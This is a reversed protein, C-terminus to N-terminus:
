AQSIKQAVESLQEIEAARIDNRIRAYHGLEGPPKAAIEDQIDKEIEKCKKIIIALAKAKTQSVIAKRVVLYLVTFIATNLAVHIIFAATPSIHM